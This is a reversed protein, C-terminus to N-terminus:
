DDGVFLGKGRELGIPRDKGPAIAGIARRPFRGAGAELADRGAAVGERRKSAIAADGNPAVAGAATEGIAGAGGRSADNIGGGRGAKDPKKGVFGAERRLPGIAGDHRPAVAAGGAGADRGTPGIGSPGEAIADDGVAVCIGGWGGAGGWGVARKGPHSEGSAVVVVDGGPPGAEGGERSVGRAFVGQVVSHVNDGSATCEGLNVVVALDNRPAVTIVPACRPTYGERRAFAAVPLDIGVAAGKHRHPLVAREFGPAVRDTAAGACGRAGAKHLDEGGEIGKRGQLNIAGDGHPAVATITAVGGARRGGGDGSVDGDGASVAGEGRQFVIARDDHPAVTGFTALAARGARAPDFEGGVLLRERRALGIARDKGPAAREGRRGAVEERHLRWGQFRGIERQGGACGGTEPDILPFHGLDERPDLPIAEVEFDSASRQGRAHLEIRDGAVDIARRCFGADVGERDFGLARRSAQALREGQDYVAGGQRIFPLPRTRGVGHPCALLEGVNRGTRGEAGIAGDAGPTGRPETAAVSGCAGAIGLDDRIM